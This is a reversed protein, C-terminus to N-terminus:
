RSWRQLQNMTYAQLRQPQFITTLYGLFGHFWTILAEYGTQVAGNSLLVYKLDKTNNDKM